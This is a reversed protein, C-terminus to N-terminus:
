NLVAAAPASIDRPLWCYYQHSLPCREDLAVRYLLTKPNTTTINSFTFYLWLETTPWCVAITCFMYVSIHGISLRLVIIGFWQRCTPLDENGVYRTHHRKVCQPMSLIAVMKWVVNKTFSFNHIEISIDSCNTDVSCYASAWINAQRRGPSLGNNSGIITLNGVCIHTM